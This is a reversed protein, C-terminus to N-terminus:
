NQDFKVVDLWTTPIYVKVGISQTPTILVISLNANGGVKGMYIYNKYHQIRKHFELSVGVYAIM